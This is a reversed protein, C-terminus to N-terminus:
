KSRSVSVNLSFLPFNLERVQILQIDSEASTSMLKEKNRQLELVAAALVTELCCFTFAENQFVM